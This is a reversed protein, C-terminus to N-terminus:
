KNQVCQKIKDRKRILIPLLNNVYDQQFKTVM